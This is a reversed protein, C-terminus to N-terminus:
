SKADLVSRLKLALDHKRFPKGLLDASPEANGAAASLRTYGSMLLVKLAPWQSSAEKALEYGNMGGPMVVDTLMLDVSGEADMVRLAQDADEAERVAYGLEALQRAVTRRLYPNDEVLLITENGTPLLAERGTGAVVAVPVDATAALPLYLKVTTGLGVESFIRVHGGTQKVFGYVMSLGLGSHHSTDKTTFFPELARELVSTSMGVGNDIVALMVYDGPTVDANRAAYDEDLHVNCTEIKLRGGDPLADHANISLSIIADELQTPDVVALALHKGPVAEITIAEPLTRRLMAAVDLLLDNIDIVRPQLPQRRAFAQLRRALEVGQAAAELADQVPTLIEPHAEACSDLLDLNGIVVGLLNNFGHAIGDTLQGLAEMKQAHRSHQELAKRRTIDELLLVMGHPQENADHLPTGFLVVDYVAGSKARCKIPRDRIHEGGEIAELIPGLESPDEDLIPPCESGIVEKAGYGFVREAVRNWIVVHRERDLGVIPLASENIVASSTEAARRHEEVMTRLHNTAAEIRKELEANLSSLSAEARRRAKLERTMAYYVISLFIISIGTGIAAALNANQFHRVNEDKQATLSFKYEHMIQTIASTIQELLILANGTLAKQDEAERTTIIAELLDLNRTILPELLNPRRQWRDSDSLLARIRGITDPAAMVAQVYLQLLRDDGTLAYTQQDTEADKLISLLHEMESIIESRIMWGQVEELEGIASYSRWGILIFLGFSFVLAVYQFKRPRLLQM